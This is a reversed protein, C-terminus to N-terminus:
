RGQPGGLRHTAGRDDGYAGFLGLLVSGAVYLGAWLVNGDRIMSITELSFSSFTTFGGLIGVALFTRTLPSIGLAQTVALEAVIGILFSGVVNIGFTAVPFGPGLRALTLVTVVYRLVSGIAGGAAVLLVARLDIV